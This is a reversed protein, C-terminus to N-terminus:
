ISVDFNINDLKSDINKITRLIIMEKEKQEKKKEQKSKNQKKFEWLKLQYNLIAEKSTIWASHLLAKRLAYLPAQLEIRRQLSKKYLHVGRVNPSKYLDSYNFIHRFQLIIQTM